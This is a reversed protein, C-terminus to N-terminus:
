NEISRARRWGALGAIGATLLLATDPEPVLRVSGLSEVEAGIDFGPDSITQTLEYLPMSGGGAAGVVGATSVPLTNAVADTGYGVNGTYSADFSTGIVLRTATNELISTGNAAGVGRLFSFWGSGADPPQLQAQADQ